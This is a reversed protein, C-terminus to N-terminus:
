EDIKKIVNYYFFRYVYIYRMYIFRISRFRLLAFLLVSIFFLLIYEYHEYLTQTSIVSILWSVIMVIALVAFYLSLSRSMVSLVLDKDIKKLNNKRAMYFKCYNYIINDNNENLKLKKRVYEEVAEKELDTLLISSNDETKLADQLLTTKKIIDKEQLFDTFCKFRKKKQLFSVFKQSIIRKQFLSGVEQFVLGVFYSIVLFYIIEKKQFKIDTFLGYFREGVILSFVSIIVGSFLVAVIDYIGFKDFITDLLEM